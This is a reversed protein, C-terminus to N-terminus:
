MLSDMTSALAENAKVLTKEITMPGEKGKPAKSAGASTAGLNPPAAVEVVMEIDLAESSSLALDLPLYAGKSKKVKGMGSM